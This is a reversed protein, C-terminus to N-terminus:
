KAIFELFTQIHMVCTNPVFGILNTSLSKVLSMNEQCDILQVRDAFNLNIEMDNRCQYSQICAYMRGIAKHNDLYDSLSTSELRELKIYERSEFSMVSVLDQSVHAVGNRYKEPKKM